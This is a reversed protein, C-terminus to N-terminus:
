PRALSPFCTSRMAARESDSLMNLHRKLHGGSRMTRKGTPVATNIDEAEIMSRLLPAYAGFTVDLNFRLGHLSMTQELAPQMQRLTRAMVENMPIFVEALTRIPDDQKVADEFVSPSTMEHQSAMCLYLSECGEEVLGAIEQDLFLHDLGSPRKLVVFNQGVTDDKSPEFQDLEYCQIVRGPKMRLQADSLSMVDAYQTQIELQELEQLPSRISKKDSSMVPTSARIIGNASIRLLRQPKRRGPSAPSAGGNIQHTGANLSIADASPSSDRSRPQGNSSVPSSPSPTSRSSLSRSKVVGSDYQLQMLCRRVDYRCQMILSTLYEASCIFGEIKCISSLYLHLERLGPKTFELHEQFRLTAAPIKSTDNCTMVVPRKSKSLLTMISAWFGKDDEFLIDVEELLILSQRPNTTALLSYLDSLTDQHNALSDDKDQESEKASGPPSSAQSQSNAGQEIDNDDIGVVDVESADQMIEDESQLNQEQEQEQAQSQSQGQKKQFFSFITSPQAPAQQMPAAVAAATEHSRGGMINVIDDKFEAKGPVVHVHHNEAMEGVLGLVEKGTRRMGPSVEFVEYGSEEACAYVAATKCSGTPGSLLITNSKIDFKRPLVKAGGMLGLDEGELPLDGHVLHAFSTLPRPTAFLGNDVDGLYEYPDGFDDFIDELDDEVIFDDLDDYDKRRLRKRRKRAAGVLDTSKKISGTSGAGSSSEEPNLTWGSVELGKLWQTLYETNGRNGLVEAGVTPRYKETWLEGFRLESPIEASGISLGATSTLLSSAWTQHWLKQDTAVRRCSEFEDQDAHGFKNFVDKQRTTPKQLRYNRESWERWKLDKDKGWHAWCDRGRPKPKYIPATIGLDPTSRLSYWRQDDQRLAGVSKPKREHKALSEALHLPSSATDLGCLRAVVGNLADITDSGHFQHHSLPFPPEQPKSNYRRRTQGDGGSAPNSGAEGISAALAQSAKVEQFFPHTEGSKSINPDNKAKQDVSSKPAAVPAPSSTSIPATAAKAKPKRGRKTSAKAAEAEELKKKRQEPTLFLSFVQKPAAPAAPAATPEPSATTGTGAGTGAGAGSESESAPAEVPTSGASSGQSALASAHALLPSHEQPTTANPTSAHSETPPALATDPDPCAPGTISTAQKAPQLSPPTPVAAESM